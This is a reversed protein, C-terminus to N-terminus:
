ISIPSYEIGTTVMGVLDIHDEDRFTTLNSAAELFEAQTFQKSDLFATWYGLETLTPAVGTVNKFMQKVFTENSTGLADLKYENSSLIAGAIEKDTKGNDKMGLYTGMLKPTVDQEGFAAALLAYVEGADGEVDFAIAKDDFMLREIDTLNLSVNDLSPHTVVVKDETVNINFDARKGGLVFVESKAATGYAEFKVDIDGDGVRATGVAGFTAVKGGTGVTAITVILDNTTDVGGLHSGKITITNGAVYGSGASTNASDLVVTYKGDTKTVDFKAGLDVGGTLGSVNQFTQNIPEDAITVKTTITM